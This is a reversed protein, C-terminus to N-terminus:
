AVVGLSLGDTPVNSPLGDHMGIGLMPLQARRSADTRILRGYVKALDAWTALRVGVEEPQSALDMLTPNPTAPTGNRNRTRGALVDDKVLDPRSVWRFSPALDTLQMPLNPETKAHTQLAVRWGSQISAFRSELDRLARLKKLDASTGNSLIAAENPVGDKTLKRAEDMLGALAENASGIIEDRHQRALRTARAAASKARHALVDHEVEYAAQDIEAEREALVAERAPTSSQHMALANVRAPPDLTDAAEGASYAETLAEALPAPLTLGTAQWARAETSLYSETGYFEIM